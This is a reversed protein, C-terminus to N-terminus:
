AGGGTDISIPEAGVSLRAINEMLMDYLDSVTKPRQCSDDGSFFFTILHSSDYFIKELLDIATEVCDPQFINPRGQINDHMFDNWMISYNYANQIDAIVTKFENYTLLNNDAM